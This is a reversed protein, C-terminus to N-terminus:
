NDTYAHKDGFHVFLEAGAANAAEKLHAVMETAEPSDKCKEDLSIVLAPPEEARQGLWGALWFSLAEPLREQAHAALVIVDAQQMVRLAEQGFCSEELLDFRWVNLAVDLQERLQAALRDIAAKGRFGSEVDDYALLVELRPRGESSDPALSRSKVWHSVPLGTHRLPEPRDFEGGTILHLLSPFTSAWPTAPSKITRHNLM